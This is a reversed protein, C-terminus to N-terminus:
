KGKLAKEGRNNTKQRKVEKPLKRFIEVWSLKSIHEEDTRHTDQDRKNDVRNRFIMELM